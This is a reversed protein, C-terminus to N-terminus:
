NDLEGQNTPPTEAAPNGADPPSGAAGSGPAPNATGRNATGRDNDVAKQEKLYEVLHNAHSALLEAVRESDGAEVAQLIEDHEKALDTPDVIRLFDMIFRTRVEFALADWLNLLIQNGASEVILRHFLQNRDQYAVWDQRRAADQIQESSQRLTGVVDALKKGALRAALAELVGKVHLADVTESVTVERVRAGRHVQYDLVRIAALERIAERVPITSVNLEAAIRAEVIKDGPALEGSGLKNLIHNRVQQSLSYRSASSGVPTDM